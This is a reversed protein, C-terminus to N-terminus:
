ANLPAVDGQEFVEIVSEHLRKLKPLQERKDSANTVTVDPKKLLDYAQEPTVNAWM